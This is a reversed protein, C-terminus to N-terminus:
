EGPKESLKAPILWHDNWLYTLVGAAFSLGCYFFYLLHLPLARMAFWSGRKATLFSYFRYNISFVLCAWFLALSPHSAIALAVASVTLAVSLRQLWSVNLENPMSRRKLILRTWPIGRDFIDTHVMTLFTWRKLHKVEIASDLLVKGALSTLEYGFEIDEISPHAYHEPLGGRRLFVERRVAGCGSWFSSSRSHASKHTFCHLLNRYESIFHRDAPGDDYSGIVAYLYPSSNLHEVVRAIADPHPCVDADLFLLISGHAARAGVNRARAPGGRKPQVLVTVGSLRAIAASDDASCDDVVTCDFDTFSSNAVAKLCEPLTAAANYCPIIVSVTAANRSNVGFALM